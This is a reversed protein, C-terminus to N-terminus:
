MVPIVFYFGFIGKRWFIVNGHGIQKDNFQLQVKEKLTSYFVREEESKNFYKAKM